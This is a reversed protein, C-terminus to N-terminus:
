FDKPEEYWEGAEKLITFMLQKTSQKKGNGNLKREIALLTCTGSCHLTGSVNLCFFTCNLIWYVYAQVDYYQSSSKIKIKSLYVSHHIFSSM